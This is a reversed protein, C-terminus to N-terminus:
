TIFNHLKLNAINFNKFLLYIWILFFHSLIQLKTKIFMVSFKSYSIATIKINSYTKYKHSM